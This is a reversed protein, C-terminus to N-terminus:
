HISKKKFRGGVIDHVANITVFANEDKDLVIEKLKDVELRTVVCYLVEKSEGTYGGAGHLLTVGRGLRDNLASTIEEHENTVIMVAYSEDLGKIVVDIMKSIVFYAVLSYMAKDWGYLLGASSLIFLNIFMVVEGVSFVSKKDMIIAVIETGDLSGGARIIMGVGIGDIIGGFIAALFPDDTVKELPDFIESWVALFCIAVLTAIAFNKGIQKYGMFLFPINLLVLFVGMSMGTITEMMISVGVIGGDIVNNPILFEELGFAAIVAGVFIMAYKKVYFSTTRNQGIKPKVENNLTAQEEM